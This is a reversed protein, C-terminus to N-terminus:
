ASKRDEHPRPSHRPAGPHRRDLDSIYAYADELEDEALPGYEEDLGDALEQLRDMADRHRAAESIYASVGREDVRSRISDLLDEPVTITIKKKAM